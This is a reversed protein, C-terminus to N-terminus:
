RPVRTDSGKAARTAGLPPSRGRPDAVDVSRSPGGPESGARWSGTDDSLGAYGSRALPDYFRKLARVGRVGVSVHGFM